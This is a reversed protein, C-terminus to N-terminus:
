ETERKGRRRARAPDILMNDKIYEVCARIHKQGIELAAVRVATAQALGRAEKAIELATKADRRTMALGVVLAVVSLLIPWLEALLRLTEM